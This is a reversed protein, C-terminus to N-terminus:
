QNLICRVSFGALKNYMQKVAFGSNNAVGRYFAPNIDFQTSTWWQGRFGIDDTPFIGDFTRGGSPLAGFGTENTAGTNPSLWHSTGTEKLKGGAVNEGGLFTTLTTWEADTPVHWGTPALQGRNLTLWNYLHGYVAGNAANNGHDCYAGSTLAAWESNSTVNPIDVGTNYKTTKLNEAMWTQSGITVVTYNNGSGDVCAVFGFNVTKTSTPIDSVLTSYNGSIGKYLLRDGSTYAMTSLPADSKNKRAKTKNEDMKATLINEASISNMSYSIAKNKYSFGNGEIDIIYVGIPLSILFSHEGEILNESASFMKRGNMAYIKLQTEGAQKAIFTLTSKGDTKNYYISSFGITSNTNQTSTAGDTLKLISGGPVTIQTGQTLNQVIVNEILTSAGSGTFSINYELANSEVTTFLMLIITILLLVQTTKNTKM